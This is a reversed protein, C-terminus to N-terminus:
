KGAWPKARGTRLIVNKGSLIFFSLNSLSSSTALWQFLVSRWVKWLRKIRVVTVQFANPHEDARRIQLAFGLSRPNECVHHRQEDVLAKLHFLFLLKVVSNLFWDLFYFDELVLWKNVEKELMLGEARLNKEFTCRKEVQPSSKKYVLIYDIRKKGDRFFLGSSRAPSKGQLSLTEYIFKLHLVCSQHHKFSRLSM